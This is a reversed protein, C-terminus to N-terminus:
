VPTKAISAIYSAWDLHSLFDWCPPMWNNREWLIVLILLGGGKNAAEGKVGWWGRTFMYFKVDIEGEVVVVWYSLPM